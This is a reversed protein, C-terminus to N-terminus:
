KIAWYRKLYYSSMDIIHAANKIPRYILSHRYNTGFDCFCGRCKNFYKRSKLIKRYKEASKRWASIVDGSNIDGIPGIHTCALLDGNYNVHLYNYPKSCVYGRMVQDFFYTKTKAYKFYEKVWIELFPLTTSVGLSKAKKISTALQIGFDNIFPEEILFTEKGSKKAEYDIFISDVCVPQFNIHKIRKITSAWEILAALRKYNEKSVVTSLCYVTNIKDARASLLFSEIEKFLGARGRLSDHRSAESDDISIIMKRVRTKNLIDIEKNTLKSLLSGNTTIADVCIHRESCRQLLHWLNKALFPEGGTIYINYVDMATMADIIGDLQQNSLEKFLRPQSSINAVGIECFKCRLNCKDTLYVVTGIPSVPKFYHNLLLKVLKNKM